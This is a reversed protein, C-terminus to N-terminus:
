LVDYNVDNKKTWIPLANYYLNFETEKFRYLILIKVYLCFHVKEQSYNDDLPGSFIDILWNM